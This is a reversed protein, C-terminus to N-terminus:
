EAYQSAIIYVQLQLEIFALLLWTDSSPEVGSDILSSQRSSLKMYAFLWLRLFLALLLVCLKCNLCATSLVVNLQDYHASQLLAASIAKGGAGEVGHKM